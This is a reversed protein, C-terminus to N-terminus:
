QAQGFLKEALLDREIAWRSPHPGCYSYEYLHEIKVADLKTLPHNKRVVIGCSHRPLKRFTYRNSNEAISVDIIGFDITESLIALTIDRWDREVISLTKSNEEQNLKTITPFLSLMPPYFGVGINLQRYIGRKINEIDILIQELPAKVKSSRSIFIEALATSKLNGHKTEFLKGGISNELTKLASSIAPQTVGLIKAAANISGGTNIANVLEFHRVDLNM